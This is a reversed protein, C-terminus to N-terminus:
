MTIQLVLTDSHPSVMLGFKQGKFGSLEARFLSKGRIDTIHLVVSALSGLLAINQRQM